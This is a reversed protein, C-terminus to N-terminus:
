RHTAEPEPIDGSLLKLYLWPKRKILAVIPPPEPPEDDAQSAPQPWAFPLRLVTGPTPATALVELVAALVARQGAADGPQGLPRGFPYDLGAVRPAGVAATWDAILSLCVTSLGHAELVRAVLGV